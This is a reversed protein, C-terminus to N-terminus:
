TYLFTQTSVFYLSCLWHRPRWATKRKRRTNLVRISTSLPSSSTLLFLTSRQLFLVPHGQLISKGWPVRCDITGHSESDRERLQRERREKRTKRWKGNEERKEELTEKDRKHVMTPWSLLIASCTSPTASVIQVLHSKTESITSGNDSVYIMLIHCIVTILKLDVADLCYIDSSM